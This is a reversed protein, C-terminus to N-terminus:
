LMRAQRRLLERAIVFRQIESTGEYIRTVRCDRLHREIPYEKVYGYGGHVQLMRDCARWAAESAYVKAMSAELTFPRKQEKLYAARLTLLRAADLETATDALMWQIAQLKALPGGFARRELAYEKGEQLAQLGIGLAQSGVGIRGGDLAVMALKFGDGLDGLVQDDPVFCDELTQPVTSSGRLGMKDEHRGSSFGEAGKEVLFCTIGRAGAEPDTKAWVVNVGSTDGSTIWQKTGNLIWGGDGRVARTKMAAADSGCHPESLSFSGTLLEGSTLGTVYRERQAATGFETILEAVMNTVAVAVTTAACGRSLETIALSYSVV